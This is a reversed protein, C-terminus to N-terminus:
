RKLPLPGDQSTPPGHFAHFTGLVERAGKAVRERDLAAAESMANPKLTIIANLKPGRQDFATIRELYAKVLRASTVRGEAMAKQQEAISVEAVEFSQAQAMLCLLMAGVTKMQRHGCEGVLRGAFHSLHTM